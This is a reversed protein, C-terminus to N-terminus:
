EGSGPTLIIPFREPLKALKDCVDLIDSVLRDAVKVDAADAAVFSRINELDRRSRPSYVVDYTM